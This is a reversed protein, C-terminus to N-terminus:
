RHPPGAPIGLGEAVRELGMRRSGKILVLDEPRIWAAILPVADAATDVAIIADRDMGARAAEDAIWRAAPGVTVLGDLRARAAARGVGRHLTESADGLELMDGLVAYVRGGGSRFLM